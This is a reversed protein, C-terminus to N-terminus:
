SFAIILVSLYKSAVFAIIKQAVLTATLWMVLRNVLLPIEATAKDPSKLWFSLFKAKCAILVDLALTHTAVSTAALPRSRRSEPKYNESHITLGVPCAQQVQTHTRTRAGAM